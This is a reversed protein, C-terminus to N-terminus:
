LGYTVGETRREDKVGRDRSVPKRESDRMRKLENRRFEHTVLASLLVTYCKGNNRTGLYLCKLM